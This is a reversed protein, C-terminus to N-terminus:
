EADGLEVTAQVAETDPSAVYMRTQVKQGSESGAIELEDNIHFQYVSSHYGLVRSVNSNISEKIETKESGTALPYMGVDERVSPKLLQAAAVQSQYRGEQYVTEAYLDSNVEGQMFISSLILLFIMASAGVVLVTLDISGKM